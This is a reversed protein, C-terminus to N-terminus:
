FPSLGLVLVVYGTRTINSCTSDGLHGGPERLLNRLKNLEECQVRYQVIWFFGLSTLNEILQKQIEDTGYLCHHLENPVFTPKMSTLSQYEGGM